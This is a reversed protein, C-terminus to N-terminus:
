DISLYTGWQCLKKNVYINYLINLSPSNHHDTQSIYTFRNEIYLNCIAFTEVNWSPLIQFLFVTVTLSITLISNWEIIFKKTFNWSWLIFVYHLTITLNITNLEVKLLIETIEHRDIKNTSIPLHVIGVIKEVVISVSRGSWELSMVRLSDSVMIWGFYHVISYRKQGMVIVSRLCCMWICHPVGNSYCYLLIVLSRTDSILIM